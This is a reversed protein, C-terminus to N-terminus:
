PLGSSARRRVVRRPARQRILAEDSLQELARLTDLRGQLDSIRSRVDEARDPGRDRILAVSSLFVLGSAVIGFLLWVSESLVPDFLLAVAGIISLVVAAVPGLFSLVWRRQRATTQQRDYSTRQDHLVALEETLDKVQAEIPKRLEAARSELWTDIRGSVEKGLISRLTQIIALTHPNGHEMDLALSRRAYARVVDAEWPVPSAYKAVELFESFSQVFDPLMKNLLIWTRFYGVHDGFLGKLREIGAASMPDYESVIIVQDCIDPRVTVQAYEDAGAQADLFIFDYSERGSRVVRGLAETFTDLGTQETNRFKYTAPLLDLKPGLRLYTPEETPKEIEFLGHPTGLDHPAATIETLYFLSLGNTAADTDVMLVRWGLEALFTAFTATLTTKGSGGKASALCIVRAKV